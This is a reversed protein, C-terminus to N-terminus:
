NYIGLIVISITDLLFIGFFCLIGLNCLNEYSFELSTSKHEDCANFAFISFISFFAFRAHLVNLMIVMVKEAAVLWYITCQLFIIRIPVAAAVKKELTPPLSNIQRPKFEDKDEPFETIYRAWCFNILGVQIRLRTTIFSSYLWFSIYLISYILRNCIQYRICKCPIKLVM